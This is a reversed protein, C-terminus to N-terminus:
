DGTILTYVGNSSVYVEQKIDKVTVSSAALDDSMTVIDRLLEITDTHELEVTFVVKTKM